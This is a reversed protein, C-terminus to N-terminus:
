EYSDKTKTKDLSEVLLDITTQETLNSKFGLKDLLFLPKSISINALYAWLSTLLILDGECCIFSVCCGRVRNGTGERSFNSM